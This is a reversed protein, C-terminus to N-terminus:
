PTSYELDIRRMWVGRVTEGRAALKEVTDFINGTRGGSGPIATARVGVGGIGRLRLNARESLPAYQGGEAGQSERPRALALVDAELETLRQPSAVVVVHERGGSSTVQWVLQKGDRTGPLRYTEGSRLPNHLESNLMPFLLYAEGKEDQSIVYVHLDRSGKFDLFLEDGPAINGGPVLLESPGDGSRYLAADVKYPLKRLAVGFIFVVIAAAAAIASMALWRAPRRRGPTGLNREERGLSASPNREREPEMAGLAGDLAQDLQGASTYREDPVSALAKEVLRVFSDPIDPRLDRLLTRAGREHAQRLENLNGGRVPYSGTVLHYLIVGLSYIDSRPTAPEGAFLEPAMYLPTGSMKGAGEEGDGLRSERGAGFDMLVIRGGEERMVNATKIDRHVVGVEHVAAMAHCLDRGIVIAEDAGLRGREKLLAELNRGRIFEMWVGLRGAYREAGFVRAVNHHQVRALLRGEQVVADAIVADESEDRRLLKLAVECDLRTDRARYVEGFTGEGIRELLELHGWRGLPGEPVPPADAAHPEVGAEPTSIPTPRIPTRYAVGIDALVKLQRVMEKLETDSASKEAEDWDMESGDSISAALHILYDERGGNKKELEM